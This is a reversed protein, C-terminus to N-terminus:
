LINMIYSLCWSIYDCDGHKSSKSPAESQTCNPGLTPTTTLIPTWQLTTCLGSHTCHVSCSCQATYVTWHTSLQPANLSRLKEHEGTPQCRDLMSCCERSESKWIPSNSSVFLIRTSHYIDELTVCRLIFM